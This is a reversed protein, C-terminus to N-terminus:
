FDTKRTYFWHIFLSLFSCITLFILLVAWWPYIPLYSFSTLLFNFDFSNMIYRYVLFLFFTFYSFVFLITIWFYGRSNQTTRRILLQFSFLFLISVIYFLFIRYFFSAINLVYIGHSVKVFDDEVLSFIRSLEKSPVLVVYLLFIGFNLIHLSVFEFIVVILKSVLIKWTKIPYNQLQSLNNTQFFRYFYIVNIIIFLSTLFFINFHFSFGFILPIDWYSDVKSFAIFQAVVWCIIGLLFVLIGFKRTQLEYKILKWM